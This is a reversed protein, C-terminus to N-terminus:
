EHFIEERTKMLCEGLLNLGKWTEQDWALPNDEALGIGWIPDVPSAEVIIKGISNKMTEYCNSNQRFKSVLGPVMIPVCNRLWVERNFGKVERGLEKQRKPSNTEMVKEATEIDEFLLAKNVMMFQESCNFLVGDHIFPSPHWNSFPSKTGWFFVFDERM